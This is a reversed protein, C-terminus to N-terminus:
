TTLKFILKRVLAFFPGTFVPGQSRKINKIQNFQKALEMLNLLQLMQLKKM